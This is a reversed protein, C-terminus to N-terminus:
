GEDGQLKDRQLVSFIIKARKKFDPFYNFENLVKRGEIKAGSDQGRDGLPPL